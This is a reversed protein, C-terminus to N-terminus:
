FRDDERRVSIAPTGPKYYWGNPESYEYGFSRLSIDITDRFFQRLAMGRPDEFFGKHLARNLDRHMGRRLGRKTILGLWEPPHLIDGPHAFAQVMERATLTYEQLAPLHVVPLDDGRTYSPLPTRSWVMRRVGPMDELPWYDGHELIVDLTGSVFERYGCPVGPLAKRLLSILTPQELGKRLATSSQLDEAEVDHQQLFEQTADYAQLTFIQLPKIRLEHAFRPDASGTDFTPVDNDAWFLYAM